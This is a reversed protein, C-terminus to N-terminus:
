RQLWCAVWDREFACAIATEVLRHELAETESLMGARILAEIVPAAHLELRYCVVGDRQRQRWRGQRTLPKPPPDIRRALERLWKARANSRLRTAGIALRALAQDTLALM